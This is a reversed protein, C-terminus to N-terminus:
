NRYAPPLTARGPNPVFDVEELASIAPGNATAVIGNAADGAMTFGAETMRERLARADASSPSSASVPRELALRSGSRGEVFALPTLCALDSAELAHAVRWARRAASGRWRDSFAGAYLRVEITASGDSALAARVAAEDADRSILGTMGEAEFRQARRGARVSRRARSAAHIRGRELSAAGVARIAARARADFPRAVGLTAARLRVRDPLSLVGRLSFDLRGLDRLRATAGAGRRAAQLDILTLADSAVLVNERHLDRHVWGTEHLERVLAGLERLRERRLAAPADLAAGLPVGEIWETVIVREGSALRVHALPRPVRLGADHM